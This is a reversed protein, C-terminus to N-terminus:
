FVRVVPAAAFDTRPRKVEEEKRRFMGTPSSGTRQSLLFGHALSKRVLGMLVGLRMDVILYVGFTVIFGFAFSHLGM